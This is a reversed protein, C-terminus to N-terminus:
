SKGDPWQGGEIDRGASFAVAALEKRKDYWSVDDTDPDYFRGVTDWWLDFDTKQPTRDVKAFPVDPVDRNKM